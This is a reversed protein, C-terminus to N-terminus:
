KSYNTIKQITNNALEIKNKNLRICKQFYPDTVGDKILYKDLRLNEDTKREIDKNILKILYQMEPKLFKDKKM